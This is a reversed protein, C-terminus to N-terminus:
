PFSFTRIRGGKGVQDLVAVTRDDLVTFVRTTYAGPTFEIPYTDAINSGPRWRILQTTTESGSYTTVLMWIVTPASGDLGMVSYQGGSNTDFTVLANGDLLSL